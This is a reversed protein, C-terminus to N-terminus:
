TTSSNIIFQWGSHTFSFSHPLSTEGWEIKGREPFFLLSHTEATTDSAAKTETASLLRSCIRKNKQLCYGYKLTRVTRTNAQDSGLQIRSTHEAPPSDILVVFLGSLISFVCLTKVRWPEIHLRMGDPSEIEKLVIRDNYVLRPAAKYFRNRLEFIFAKM